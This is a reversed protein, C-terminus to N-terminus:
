ERAASSNSPPIQQQLSRRTYRTWRYIQNADDGSLRAEPHLFTYRRPPMSGNRVAVGIEALLRKKRTEDYEPWRSLDLHSRALRIDRQVLITMPFIRGYIPWETNSSHCNQCSRALLTAVQPDSAAAVTTHKARPSHVNAPQSLVTLVVWTVFAIALAAIRKM